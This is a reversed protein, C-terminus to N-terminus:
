AKTEEESEREFIEERLRWSPPGAANAGEWHERKGAANKIEEVWTSENREGAAKENEACPEGDIVAGIDAGDVLLALRIDADDHGKEIDM